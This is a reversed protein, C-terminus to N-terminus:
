KNRKELNILEVIGELTIDIADEVGRQIKKRKPSGVSLDINGKASQRGRNEYVVGIFAAHVGRLQSIIFLTAAEMDMSIVRKRAWQQFYESSRSYFASHTWNIGNWLKIKKQNAKENLYKYLLPDAIAPYQNPVYYTSAGDDRVCASPLVIDGPNLGPQLGAVSGIRILWIAGINILEEYVIASSPGGMGTSTVSIPIGQFDGTYTILGRNNAIKTVNNLKKIIKSLRGQDGPVLVIPAIEGPSCEIHYQKKDELGTPRRYDIEAQWKEM